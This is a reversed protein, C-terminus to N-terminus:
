AELRQTVGTPLPVRKAEQRVRDTTNLVAAVEAETCVDSAAWRRPASAHSCAAALPNTGCYPDLILEGPRSSMELFVKYLQWPKATRGAPRPFKLLSKYQGNAEYGRSPGNTWIGVPEWANQYAGLGSEGKEWALLRQFTWGHRAMGAFVEQLAEGAPTFMYIGGGENSSAARM